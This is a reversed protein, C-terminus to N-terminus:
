LLDYSSLNVEWNRIDYLSNDFYDKVLPKCTFNFHKPEYRHPVTILGIPTFPLAGVYIIVDVKKREKRYIYRVASEFASKSLPYVDLLFAAEVGNYLEIKYVFTLDKVSVRKYHGGFWKYRVKDFTLRDKHYKFNYPKNGVSLFSCLYQLRSLGRSLFNLGSLGHKVASINRIMCYTTLRGIDHHKLGKKLVPYSNDNPFGIRLVCGDEKLRKQCQVIMDHFNFFDRHEKKVMSDIGLAAMFQEGNKRYYFPMCSHFGITEGDDSLLISHYSYGLPTNSYNERFTAVDRKQGFVEDFLAYIAVIEEDQLEFTKKVLIEM